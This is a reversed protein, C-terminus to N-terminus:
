VKCVPAAHAPIMGSQSQVSVSAASRHVDTQESKLSSAPTRVLFPTVSAAWRELLVSRLVFEWPCVWCPQCCLTLKARVCIVNWLACCSNQRRRGSVTKKGTELLEWLLSIDWSLVRDVWSSASRSIVLLCTAVSRKSLHSAFRLSSDTM